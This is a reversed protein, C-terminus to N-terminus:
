SPMREVPKKKGIPVPKKGDAVRFVQFGEEDLECQLYNNDSSNVIWQARGKGQWFITFQVSGTGLAKPFDLLGGSKRTYWGTGVGARNQRDVAGARRGLGSRTTRMPPGALDFPQRRHECCNPWRRRRRGRCTRCRCGADFADGVKQDRDVIHRSASAMTSPMFAPQRRLRVVVQDLGAGGVRAYESQARRHHHLVVVRVGGDFIETHCFSMSM